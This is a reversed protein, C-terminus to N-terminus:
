IKGQLAHDIEIASYSKKCKGFCYSSNTNLYITLSPTSDNHFPCPIRVLNNGFIKWGYKKVLERFNGRQAPTWIKEKRKEEFAPHEEFRISNNLLININNQFKKKDKLYLWNVDMKRNNKPWQCIHAKGKNRYLLDALDIAREQGANHLDYDYLIFINKGQLEIATHSKISLGLSAMAYYGAQELTIADIPSEVIIINDNHITNYNFPVPIPGTLHKHKPEKDGITRSTFYLTDVGKILPFIIRYNFPDKNWKFFGTDKLQNETYTRLLTQYGINGTCYGLKFRKASKKIGREKLYNAADKSNLLHQHYIHTLYNLIDQKM